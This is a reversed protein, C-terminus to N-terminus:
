SDAFISCPLAVKLVFLCCFLHFFLVLAVVSFCVLVFVGGGFAGSVLLLHGLCVVLCILLFVGVLCFLGM